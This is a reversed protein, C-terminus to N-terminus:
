GLFSLAFGIFWGYIYDGSGDFIYDEDVYEGSGDEYGQGYDGEEDDNDFGSELEPRYPSMFKFVM